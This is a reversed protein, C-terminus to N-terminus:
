GAVGTDWAAGAGAAAASVVAAVAAAVGGAHGMGPDDTWGRYRSVFYENSSRAASRTDQMVSLSFTWCSCVILAGEIGSSPTCCYVYQLSPWCPMLRSPASVAAPPWPSSSACAVLKGTFKAEVM